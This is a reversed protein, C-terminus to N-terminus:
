PFGPPPPPATALSIFPLHAVAAVAPPRRYLPVVQVRSGGPHEAGRLVALAIPRGLTPSVHVTSLVGARESGIFVPDGARVDAAEPLLGALLKRPKGLFHQRAVVEQGTYCGKTFSVARPAQGTEVPLDDEDIDVGFWPRGAETRLVDIAELGAAVLGAPSGAAVMRDHLRPAEAPPIWILCGHEGTTRDAQILIPTGSAASEVFADEPGEPWPLGAAALVDRSRPGALLLIEWEATVDAVSVDSILVFRDLWRRLDERRAASVELLISDQRVLFRLDSIVRGKPELIFAYGGEGPRRAKVEQSCVGHLFKARDGGTLRLVGLDSWAALVAGRRAARVEDEVAGYRLVCRRGAVLGPAGGAAELHALLVEAPASM